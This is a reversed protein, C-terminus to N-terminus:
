IEELKKRHYEFDWLVLLVEVTTGRFYKMQVIITIKEIWMWHIKLRTEILLLNQHCPEIGKNPIHPTIPLSLTYTLLIARHSISFFFSCNTFYWDDRWFAAELTLSLIYPSEYHWLSTILLNLICCINISLITLRSIRPYETLMVWEIPAVYSCFRWHQSTM